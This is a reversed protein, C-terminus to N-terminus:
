AASAQVLRDFLQSAEQLQTPDFHSRVVNFDQIFGQRDRRDVVGDLWRISNEVATYMQGVHPNWMQIDAYLGADRSLMRGTLIQALESFSSTFESSKAVDIRLSKLTRAIVLHMLHPLAQVVAMYKDHEDPTSTTLKAETANLFWRLWEQWMPKVRAECVIMTQGMLTGQPPACMPHLGVVSAKSMLMEQVPYVKVSAIDMWLQEPKGLHALSSIVGVMKNIEVAFIVVDSNRVVEENKHATDQNTGTVECGLKKCHQEFWQGYKGMGIIGIKRSNM